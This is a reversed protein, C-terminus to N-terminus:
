VSYQSLLKQAIEPFYKLNHYYKRNRMKKIHNEIQLAQRRSKCELQWFLKWDKAQKSYSSHYFGSNHRTIREEVEVTEGIYFRDTSESYIIYVFHSM